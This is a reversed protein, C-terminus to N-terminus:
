GTRPHRVRPRPRPVAGAEGHRPARDADPGETPLKSGNGDDHHTEIPTGNVLLLETAKVGAACRTDTNRIMKTVSVEVRAWRDPPYLEDVWPHPYYSVVVRAARFRSASEALRRHWEKREAEKRPADHEYEAAKKCYPPDLYIATGKEDALKGLIEFGCRNLVDVRELRRTFAPVSTIMNRFRVGGSGGRPTFRASFSTRSQRTGAMGSRGMWWTVLAHYARDVNGLKGTYPTMVLERSARYLEESCITFHLMPLLESALDARGVCVAVNVLDRNLDNVVEHRAAPKAFLVAMSGCFPEVYSTHEGLQAVIKAAITRKAGYWPALAKIPNNGRRGM